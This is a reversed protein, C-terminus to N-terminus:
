AGKFTGSARLREREARATEARVCRRSASRHQAIEVGDLLLV